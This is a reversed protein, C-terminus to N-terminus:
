MGQAVGGIRIVDVPKGGRCADGRQFMVIVRLLVTLGDGLVPFSGCLCQPFQAKGNGIGLRIEQKGGVRGNGTLVQILSQFLPAHQYPM